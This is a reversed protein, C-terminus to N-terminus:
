NGRGPKGIMHAPRSSGCVVAGGQVEYFSVIERHASASM